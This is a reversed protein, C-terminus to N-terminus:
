PPYHDLGCRDSPRVSGAIAPNRGLDFMDEFAVGGEWGPRTLAVIRSSLTEELRRRETIDRGTGRYGIFRGEADYRPMGSINFWHAEGSRTRIRYELDRFPQHADLLARHAAWQEPTLDIAVEWRTKGILTTPDIGARELNHVAGGTSVYTFRFQDDQEWFWDSALAALDRFRTESALLAAEAHKRQTIDRWTTHLIRQGQWPIATLLVEVWLAGGDLDRHVWEFCQSGERFAAAIIEEAKKPLAGAM